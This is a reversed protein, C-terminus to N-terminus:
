FRKNNKYIAYIGVHWTAVYFRIKTKWRIICVYSWLSLYSLIQIMNKNNKKKTSIRHTDRAPSYCQPPRRVSVPGVGPPWFSPTPRTNWRGPRTRIWRPRSLIEHRLSRVYLVTGLRHHHYHYWWSYSATQLVFSWVSINDFSIGTWRTPLNGAATVDGCFLWCDSRENQLPHACVSCSRERRIIDVSRGRCRCRRCRVLFHCTKPRDLPSFLYYNNIRDFLDYYLLIMIIM